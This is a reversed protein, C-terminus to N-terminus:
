ITCTSHQDRKAALYAAHAQAPDDFTGLYQQRRNTTITAVWRKKNATPAVGLFGSRNNSQAKRINHKNELDSVERLNEIRNDQKDGNIHDLQQAPWQGRVFFWALRHAHVREGLVGIVTYGRQYWGAVAGAKGRGGMDTAWTFIGTDPPYHLVEKLQEAAFDTIAMVSRSLQNTLPGGTNIASTPKTMKAALTIL